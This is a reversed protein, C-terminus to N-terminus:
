LQCLIYVLESSLVLKRLSPKPQNRQLPKRKLFLLGQQAKKDCSNELHRQIETTIDNTYSLFGKNAM